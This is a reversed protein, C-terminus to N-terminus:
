PAPFERSWVPRDEVPDCRHLSGIVCNVFQEFSQVHTLYPNRPRREALFFVETQIGKDWVESATQEVILFKDDVFFRPRARVIVAAKHEPRDTFQLGM